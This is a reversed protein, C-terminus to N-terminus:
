TRAETADPSPQGAPSLRVKMGRDLLLVQAASASNLALAVQGWSDCVVGLEGPRLEGYNGVVRATWEPLEEGVVDVQVHGLRPPLDCFRLALGVNGFRDIEIVEAISGAPTTEALPQVPRVLTSPDLQGACLAPDAAGALLAAAPAFVDRGHFSSCTRDAPLGAAARVRVQDLLWATQLGGLAEAANLLVGNDPGVLLDGRVTSLALPRRGQQVGPGVIAVHVAPPYLPAIRGLVLAAAGVDGVPIEHSIHFIRAQPRIRAVMAECVAVYGGGWGSDSLFTIIDTGDMGMGM